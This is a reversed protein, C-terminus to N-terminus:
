PTSSMSVRSPEASLALTGVYGFDALPATRVIVTRGELSVQGDDADATSMDISSPALSLGYGALKLVAEKATWWQLVVKAHCRDDLAAVRAQEARTFVRTDDLFSSPLVFGAPEVDIAVEFDTSMVIAASDAASSVGFHLTRANSRNNLRPRGHSPDGCIQCTRDFTIENANLRLYHATLFRVATRRGVFRRADVGNHFRAARQQENGDLWSDGVVALADLASPGLLWIGVADGGLPLAVPIAEHTSATV